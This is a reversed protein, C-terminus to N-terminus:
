VGAGGEGSEGGLPKSHHAPLFKIPDIHLEAIVDICRNICALTAVAIEDPEACGVLFRVLVAKEGGGM